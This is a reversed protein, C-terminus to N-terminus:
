HFCDGSRKRIFHIVIIFYIIQIIDFLEIGDNVKFRISIPLDYTLIRAYRFLRLTSREYYVKWNNHGRFYVEDRNCSHRTLHIVSDSLM